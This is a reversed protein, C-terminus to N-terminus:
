LSTWLSSAALLMSLVVLEVGMTVVLAVRLRSCGRAVASVLLVILTMAHGVGTAVVVFRLCCNRNAGMSGVCICEAVVDATRIGSAMKGRAIALAMSLLSPRQVFGMGAAAVAVVVDVSYGVQGPLVDPCHSYDAATAAEKTLSISPPPLVVM